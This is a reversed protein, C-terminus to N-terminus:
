TSTVFIRQTLPDSEDHQRIYQILKPSLVQGKPAILVGSPNLLNCTLVMDAEMESILVEKEQKAYEPRKELIRLFARGVEPHFRIGMNEEIFKAAESRPMPVEDYADPVAIISALKPIQDHNLRSPYGHGNFWEHHAEIVEPVGKQQLFRLLDAGTKPHSQLSTQQQLPLDAWGMQQQRHYSRSVSILGIDHMGAAIELADLQQESLAFSKGIAVAWQAVRSSHGALVHDFRDLIDLGFKVSNSLAQQLLANTRQLEENGHVLVEQLRQNERVLHYRNLAEKVCIAVEEIVCPKTIFRFIEGDNIATLAMKTEPHGTMLIRIIFPHTQKLEKFFELGSGGPLFQDCLVVNVEPNQRLVKRGKEMNAASVTKCVTSELSDRLLELIPPEDDVLLVLDQSAQSSQM